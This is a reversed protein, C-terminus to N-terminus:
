VSIFIGRIGTAVRDRYGANWSAGVNSLADIKENRGLKPSRPIAARPQGGETGIGLSMRISTQKSLLPRRRWRRLNDIMLNPLRHPEFLMFRRSPWSDQM